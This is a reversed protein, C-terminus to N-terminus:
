AFTLAYACDVMGRGLWWWPHPLSVSKSIIDRMEMLVERLQQYHAPPVQSYPLRFPKDDSLRIRHVFGRAEGCDLKGRSFVDLYSLVLDALKQKWDLSVECGDIDIDNLDSDRLRLEPDSVNPPSSGAGDPVLVNECLGQTLCLDELALCPFVDALKANHQLTIPTDTYCGAGSSHEQAHLSLLNARCYCHERTVPRLVNSGIILDNKQGSVVLMPISFQLGYIEIDFEYIGKPKTMLGGCGMLVVQDPVPQLHMPVGAAVLSSVAAESLTCSMSGTDLMGRLVHRGSFAVPAYFQEGVGELRQSGVFIVSKDRPLSSSCSEYISKLDIPETLSNVEEDMGGRGQCSSTLKFCGGPIVIVWGGSALFLLASVPEQFPRSQFM